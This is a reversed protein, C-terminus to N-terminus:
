IQNRVKQLMSIAQDIMKASEQEDAKGLILYDLSAGYRLSIDVLLEISCAHNGVEIKSLHSLSINLEEAFEEQTLKKGRRLAAIRKGTEVQDYYM